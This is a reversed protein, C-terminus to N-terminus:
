ALPYLINILNSWDRQFEKSVVDLVSFLSLTEVLGAELISMCNIWGVLGM